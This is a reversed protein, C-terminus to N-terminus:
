RSVSAMTSPESAIASQGIRFASTLTAAPRRPHADVVAAADADAVGDVGAHDDDGVAGVVGAVPELAHQRGVRRRADQAVSVGAVVVGHGGGVLVAEDAWARRKVTRSHAAEQHAVELLERRRRRAARGRAPGPEPRDRDDLVGVHEALVPQDRCGAAHAVQRREVAIHLLDVAAAEARNRSEDVAMRVRREAAVADFLERQARGAGRILLQMGGAAADERGNAGGPGGPLAPEALGDPAVPM